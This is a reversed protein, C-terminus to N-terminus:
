ARSYYRHTLWSIPLGIMLMLIAMGKMANVLDFPRQNILSLPVVVRNMIIWVVIGYALGALIRHRSLFTFKPYIVFYLVTWSYAILYHFLLGLFAMWLGGSFAVERGFAASAIYQLITIPNLQAMVTAAIIDLTGAVLGILAIAKLRSAPQTRVSSTTPSEM